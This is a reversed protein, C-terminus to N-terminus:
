DWLIFSDMKLLSEKCKPCIRNELEGVDIEKTRDKKCRSCRRHTEFSGGDYFEIKVTVKKFVHDCNTCHFLSHNHEYHCVHRDKVAEMVSPRATPHLEMILSSLPYVPTMGHGLFYKKRYVCDVDTCAVTGGYGM